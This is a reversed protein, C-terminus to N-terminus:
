NTSLFKTLDTVRDLCLLPKHEMLKEASHAGHSVAISDVGANNAMMLDHESDGIMLTQGTKTQTDNVIGLLMEPHPKSLYEGACRTTSFYHAVDHETISHDLGRRSKGTAIALTFGAKKLEDLMDTVGEFLPSPVKNEHLYHHRYTDAMKEILTQEKEPHLQKIAEQLGLGIVGRAAEETVPENCIINSAAQLSTTIQEISDILTGDWDFVLLSYPMNINNM